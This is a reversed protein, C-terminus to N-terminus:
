SEPRGLAGLTLLMKVAWAAVFLVLGGGVCWMPPIRYWNLVPVRGTVVVGLSVLLVIVVVLAAVLGAVQARGAAVIEGRVTHAFATTMGCTPCPMQTMLLFGCPPLGLERHTGVGEPSPTISAALLLIAGAAVAIAAAYLRGLVPQGLPALSVLPGLPHRRDAPPHDGDLGAESFAPNDTEPRSHMDPDMQQHHPEVAPDAM